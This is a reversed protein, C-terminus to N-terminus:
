TLTVTPTDIPKKSKKLKFLQYLTGVGYLLVFVSLVKTILPDAPGDAIPHSIPVRTLTEVTAPIMSLFLTTSICIIQIYDAAKKVVTIRNAYVGIAVLVLIIIALPHGATPHGLKMIPLATLCTIITLWIYALGINTSPSMKGYRILAIVATLIALVSIATHIIGLISLHNPVFPM